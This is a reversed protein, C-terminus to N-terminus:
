YNSDNFVSNQKYDPLVAERQLENLHKQEYKKKKKEIYDALLNEAVANFDDTEEFVFVTRDRNEKNPKIDMVSFGKQILSRAVPAAYICRGKKENAKEVDNFKKEVM